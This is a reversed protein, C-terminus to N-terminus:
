LLRPMYGTRLAHAWDPRGNRIALQAAAEFDYPISVLDVQWQGEINEAIAYRADPSGNEVRHYSSLPHPRSVDYAPMGVAGPNVILMGGPQRLARQIHSHGCVLLRIHAPVHQGLRENIESGLAMRIGEGEATELLYEVTSRPTGHCLAVDNGLRDAWTEGAHLRPDLSDQLAALWWRAPDDLEAAAFADSTSRVNTPM